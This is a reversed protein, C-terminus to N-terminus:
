RSIRNKSDLYWSERQGTQGTVDKQEASTITFVASRYTGDGNDLSYAGMYDPNILKRWHTGSM